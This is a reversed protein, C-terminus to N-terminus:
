DWSLPPPVWQSVQQQQADRKVQTGLRKLARAGKGPPARTMGSRIEELRKEWMQLKGKGDHVGSAIKARWYYISMRATHYEKLDSVNVM